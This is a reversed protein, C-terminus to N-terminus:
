TLKAGSAIALLSFVCTGICLLLFLTKNQKILVLGRISAYNVRYCQLKNMKTLNILFDKSEKSNTITQPVM